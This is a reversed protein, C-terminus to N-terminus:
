RMGAATRRREAEEQREKEISNVIAAIEDTSLMRLSRPDDGSLVAVEMSQPGTQVVELLAEIATKTVQGSDMANAEEQGKIRGELFERVSKSGRGIACALWESHLGSPETLFLRPRLNGGGGAGAATDFAPDFGVILCCLGFPRVGGKQTYQQQVGAIYRAMDEVTPADGLTLRSSQCELRAKGLLIRADATLGAFGAWLHEDLQVIKKITRPDQLKPVAKKEVALVVADM